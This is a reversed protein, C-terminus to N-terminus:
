PLMCVGVHEYGPPAAGDEFFAVCSTGDGPPCAADTVDCYPACCGPGGVCGPIREPEYICLNGNLCSNDFYCEEGVAIGSDGWGLECNFTDTGIAVLCTMRTPDPCDQLIPDCIPNCLIRSGDNDINCSTGPDECVPAEASGTCMAACIGEGEVLWNCVAGFDCDDEGSQPGGLETCTDGPSKPNAVVPVCRNADWTTGNPSRYPACKEGEPCDQAWPDCTSMDGGSDPEGVFAGGDDGDDGGTDDGGDGGDDGGGDDGGDGGGDDGGGDGGDDAGTDGDGGDPAAGGGSSGEGRDSSDGCGALSL